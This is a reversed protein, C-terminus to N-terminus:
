STLAQWLPCTWTLDRGRKRERHRCEFLEKGGYTLRDRIVRFGKSRSHKVAILFDADRQELYAFLATPM